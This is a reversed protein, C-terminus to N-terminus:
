KNINFSKRRLGRDIAYPVKTLLVSFGQRIQNDIFKVGTRGVNLGEDFLGIEDFIERPMVMCNSGTRSNCRYGMVPEHEWKGIRPQHVPTVMRKGPVEKLIRICETLWGPQVEVDDDMIVIWKGTSMKIGMNRAISLDRNNQTNDILILEHPYSTNKLVSAISQQFLEERNNLGGRFTVMIISAYDNM